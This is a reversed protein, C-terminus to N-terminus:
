YCCSVRGDALNTITQPLNTEFPKIKQQFVQTSIWYSVENKDLTLSNLMLTFVLFIIVMIAQLICEAQGFIVYGKTSVLKIKKLLLNLKKRVM